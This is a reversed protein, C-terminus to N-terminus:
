DKEFNLTGNALDIKITDGESFDGSLLKLALPDQVERQIARKLPRAGFEPDYGVEALWERAAPSIELKFGRDALLNSVHGLQIAVIEGLNERTLPKFVVIEDVRNLFEPRFFNRLIDVIEDRDVQRPQGTQDNMWLQSGLNSTMIILTNRFDVTRGQGDTMRGDDLVQLLANFIEPHAKEIEDFLVVSYPRRRVAETM